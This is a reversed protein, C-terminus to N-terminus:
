YLFSIPPLSPSLYDILLTILISMLVYRFQSIIRSHLYTLSIPFHKRELTSWKTSWVEELSPYSYTEIKNHRPPDHQFTFSDGFDLIFWGEAGYCDSLLFPISNQHCIM